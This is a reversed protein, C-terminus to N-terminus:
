IEPDLYSQPNGCEKCSLDLDIANLMVLVPGGSPMSCYVSLDTLVQRATSTFWGIEVIKRAVGRSKSANKPDLGQKECTGGPWSGVCGLPTRTSILACSPFSSWVMLIPIGRTSRCIYQLQSLFRRFFGVKLPYIMLGTAPEAAFTLISKISGSMSMCLPTIKRPSGVSTTWLTRKAM